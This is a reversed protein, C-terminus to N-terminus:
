LKSHTSLKHNPRKISHIQDPIFKYENIIWLTISSAIMNFYTSVYFIILFICYKHHERQCMYVKLICWLITNPSPLLDSPGEWLKLSNCYERSVEHIFIIEAYNSFTAVKTQKQQVDHYITGGYTFLYSTQSRGNHPDSMYIDLM